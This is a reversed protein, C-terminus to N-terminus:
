GVDQLSHTKRGGRLPKEGAQFWILALMEPDMNGARLVMERWDLGKNEAEQFEEARSSQDMYDAAAM